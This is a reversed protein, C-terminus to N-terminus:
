FYITKKGVEHRKLEIEINNRLINDRANVEINVSNLWKSKLQSKAGYM